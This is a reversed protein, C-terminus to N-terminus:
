GGHDEGEFGAFSAFAESLPASALAEARSKVLGLYVIECTYETPMLAPM